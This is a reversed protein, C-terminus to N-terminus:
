EERATTPTDGRSWAAGQAALTLLTNFAGARAVSAAEYPGCWTPAIQQRPIRWFWGGEALRLRVEIGLESDDTNLMDFCSELSTASLADVIAVRWPDLLTEEEQQEEIEIHVKIGATALRAYLAAINEWLWEKSVRAVTITVTAEKDM